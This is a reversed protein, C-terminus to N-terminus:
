SELSEGSIRLYINEGICFSWNKEGREKGGFEQGGVLEKEWIRKSLSYAKYHLM